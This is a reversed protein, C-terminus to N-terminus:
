SSWISKLRYIDLSLLKVNGGNSFLELGDSQSDPFTLNTMAIEGNNGFVEITSRDVFVHFKM